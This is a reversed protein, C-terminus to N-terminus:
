NILILRKLLLHQINTLRSHFSIVFQSGIKRDIFIATSQKADTERAAVFFQLNIALSFFTIQMILIKRKHNTKERRTIFEQRCFLCFLDKYSSFNVILDINEIAIYNNRLKCCCFTTIQLLDLHFGFNNVLIHCYFNFCM